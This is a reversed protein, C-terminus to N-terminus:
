VRERCSARGIKSKFKDGKDDWDNAISILKNYAKKELFNPKSLLLGILDDQIIGLTGYCHGQTESIQQLTYILAAGVRDKSDEKVGSAKAIADAKMFGFGDLEYILVYPNKRVVTVSKEGYKDYIKKAQNVTVDGKLEYFLDFYKINENYSSSIKEVKKKSIGSIETLRMPNNKIIEISKKGFKSVIKRATAKGVGKILGSGLFGQIGQVSSMVDVMEGRAAKIQEGYTPHVIIEGEIVIEAGEIPNSIKGSATLTKGEKLKIKICSWDGKDSIVRMIKGKYEM